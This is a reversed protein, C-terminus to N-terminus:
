SLSRADRGREKSRYAYRRVYTAFWRGRMPRIKQGAISSIAVPKLFAVTPGCKTLFPLLASRGRGCRLPDEGGPCTDLVLSLGCEGVLRCARPNPCMLLLLLWRDAGGKTHTIRSKVFALRTRLDPVFTDQCFGTGASLHQEQGVLGVRNQCGPIATNAFGFTTLHIQGTCSPRERCPPSRRSSTLSAAVEGWQGQGYLETAILSSNSGTGSEHNSSFPSPSDTAAQGSM